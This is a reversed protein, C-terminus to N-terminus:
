IKYLSTYTYLVNFDPLLCSLFKLFNRLSLFNMLSKGKYVHVGNGMNKFDGLSCMPEGLKVKTTDKSQITM